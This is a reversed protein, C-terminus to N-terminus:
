RHVNENDAIKTWTAVDLWEGPPVMDSESIRGVTISKAALHGVSSIYRDSSKLLLGDPTRCERMDGESADITVRWGCRRGLLADHGILPRHASWMSPPLGAKAKHVSLTKFNGKADQEFSVTANTWMVRQRVREGSADSVAEIRGLRRITQQVAQGNWETGELVVLDNPLSGRKGDDADLWTSWNLLDRPVAIEDPRVKRRTLSVIRSESIGSGRFGIQKQWLTVGDSTLCKEQTVPDRFFSWVSCREGLVQDTRGTWRVEVPSATVAGWVFFGRRAGESGSFSISAGSKIDSISTHERGDEVIDEKVLNASRYVTVRYGRREQWGRGEMVAVYDAGGPAAFIANAPQRFHIMNGKPWAEYRADRVFSSASQHQFLLSSDCAALPIVLIAMLLRLAMGGKALHSGGYPLLWARPNWDGM